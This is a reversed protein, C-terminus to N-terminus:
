CGSRLREMLKPWETYFDENQPLAYYADIEMIQPQQYRRIKSLIATMPKNGNDLIAQPDSQQPFYPAQIALWKNNMRFPIRYHPAFWWGDRVGISLTRKPTGYNATGGVAQSIPCDINYCAYHLDNEINYTRFGWRNLKLESKCELCHM